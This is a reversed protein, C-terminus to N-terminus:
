RNICYKSVPFPFRTPKKNGRNTKGGLQVLGAPQSTCLSPCTFQIYRTTPTCSPLFTSLAPVPVYTKKKKKKKKCHLPHAISRPFGGGMNGILYQDHAFKLFSNGGDSNILSVYQDVKERLWKERSRGQRPLSIRIGLPREKAFFPSSKENTSRLTHLFIIPIGEVGSYPNGM